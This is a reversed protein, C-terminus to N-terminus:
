GTPNEGVLELAQEEDCTFLAASHDYGILSRLGHLIQYFLNKPSIEELIKHDIRSRVERVREEEIRTILQTAAAGISSFAQRVDWQFDARPGRVALVGWPRDFRRVRSLMIEPGVQVEEKRLFRALMSRDWITNGPTPFLVDAESRGARVVAVCGESAGFFGMSLRLARMIVKEVERSDGLQNTFNSVRRMLDQELAATM